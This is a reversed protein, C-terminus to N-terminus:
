HINNSVNNNNNNQDLYTVEHCRYKQTNCSRKVLTSLSFLNNKLIKEKEKRVQYLNLNKEGKSSKRRKRRSKSILLLM